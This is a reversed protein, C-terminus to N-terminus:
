MHMVMRPTFFGPAVMTVVWSKPLNLVSSFVRASNIDRM